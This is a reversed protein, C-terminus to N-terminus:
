AIFRKDISVSILSNILINQNTKWFFEKTDHMHTSSKVTLLIGKTATQTLSCRFHMSSQRPVSLSGSSFQHSLILPCDFMRLTTLGSLWSATYSAKKLHSSSVKHKSAESRTLFKRVFTILSSMLFISEKVQYPLYPLLPWPHSSCPYRQSGATFMPHHLELEQSFYVLCIAVDCGQVEPSEAQVQEPIQKSSYWPTCHQLTSLDLFAQNHILGSCAWSCEM